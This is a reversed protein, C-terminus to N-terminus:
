VLLHHLFPTQPHRISISMSRIPQPEQQKSTVFRPQVHAPKGPAPPTASATSPFPPGRGRLGLPREPHRLPIRSQRLLNAAPPPSPKSACRGPRRDLSFAFSRADCASASVSANITNAGSCSSTPPSNHVNRLVASSAPPQELRQEGLLVHPFPQAAHTGAGPSGRARLSGRPSPRAPPGSSSRRSVADTRLQVRTPGSILAVRVASRASSIRVPCTASVSLRGVTIAAAMPPASLAVPARTSVMQAPNASPSRRM